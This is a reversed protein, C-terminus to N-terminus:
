GRDRVEKVGIWNNLNAGAIKSAYSQSTEDLSHTVQPSLFTKAKGQTAHCGTGAGPWIHFLYTPMGTEFRPRPNCELYTEKLLCWTQGFGYKLM